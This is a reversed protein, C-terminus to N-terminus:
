FAKKVPAKRSEPAAASWAAASAAACVAAGLAAYSARAHSGMRAAGPAVLRSADVMDRGPTVRGGHEVRKQLRFSM